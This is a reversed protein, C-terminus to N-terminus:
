KTITFMWCQLLLNKMKVANSRNISYECMYWISINNQKECYFPDLTGGGSKFSTLLPSLDASVARHLCYCQMREVSIIVFNSLYNIQLKLKINCIDREISIIVKSGLVCSMDVFWHFSLNLSCLILINGYICCM